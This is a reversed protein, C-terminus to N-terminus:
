LHGGTYQEPLVHADRLHTYSVAYVCPDTFQTYFTVTISTKGVAKGNGEM